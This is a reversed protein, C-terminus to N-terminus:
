GGPRYGRRGGSVLEKTTAVSDVASRPAPRPSGGGSVNNNTINDGENIIVPASAGRRQQGAEYASVIEMATSPGGAAIRAVNRGESPSEFGEIFSTFAAAERKAIALQRDRQAAALDLGAYDTKLDTGIVKNIGSNVANSFFAAVDGIADVTALPLRRVAAATSEVQSTADAMQKDSLGEFTVAAATLPLAVKNALRMIPDIYTMAKQMNSMAKPLENTNAAAGMSGVIDDYVNIGALPKFMPKPTMRADSLRPDGALALMAARREKFSRIVNKAEQISESAEQALRNAAIPSTVKPVYKAKPLSGTPTNARPSGDFTPRKTYDEIGQQPKPRGFSPETKPIAAADVGKLADSILKRVKNLGILALGSISTTIAGIATQVQPDTTDLEGIGPLTVKGTEKDWGFTRSLWGTIESGFAGGVAALVRVYPNKTILSAAIYGYIGDTAKKELDKRKEPDDEAIGLGDFVAKIADDAFAYVLGAIAGKKFLKGAAIGAAAALGAGTVGGLLGSFANTAFDVLSTLGLGQSVGAKFGSPSSAGSGRAKTKQKERKAEERDGAAREYAIRANESDKVLSIIGDKVTELSTNQEQLTEVVAALSSM